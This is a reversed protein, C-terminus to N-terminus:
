ACTGNQDAAAAASATSQAISYTCTTRTEIQTFTELLVHKKTCKLHSAGHGGHRREDTGNVESSSTRLPPVRVLWFFFYALTRFLSKYTLNKEKTKGHATGNRLRMCANAHSCQDTETRAHTHKHTRRHKTRVEGSSLWCWCWCCCVVVNLRRRWFLM